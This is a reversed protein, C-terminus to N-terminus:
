GSNESLLGVLGSRHIATLALALADTVHLPLDHDLDQWVGFVEKALLRKQDESKRARKRYETGLVFTKVEAQDFWDLPVDLATFFGVLGSVASALKRVARVSPAYANPLELIVCSPTIEEYLTRLQRCMELVQSQEEDAKRLGRVKGALAVPSFCVTRAVRWGTHHEFYKELCAVGVAGLAPDIAWFVPKNVVGSEGVREPKLVTGSKVSSKGSTM